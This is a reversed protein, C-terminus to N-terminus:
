LDRWHFFLYGALVLAGLTGGYSLLVRIPNIDKYAALNEFFGRERRPPQPQPAGMLGRMFEEFQKQLALFDPTKEQEVKPEPLFWHQRLIVPLGQNLSIPSVEALRFTALLGNIPYWVFLALLVAIWGSRFLVGLLFGLSLISWLVVVAVLFGVVAGDLTVRDQPAPRDAYVGILTTPLVALLFVGLVTVARALWSSLVFELRTIPRSLIGDAVTEVRAGGVAAAGLTIVVVFWPFVLFPFIFSSILIADPLIQWWGLLTLFNVLLSGGAWLRVLWGGWLTRLEFLTLAM